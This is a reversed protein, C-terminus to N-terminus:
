RMAGTEASAAIAYVEFESRFSRLLAGLLSGLLAEPLACGPKHKVLLLVNDSIPKAARPAHARQSQM